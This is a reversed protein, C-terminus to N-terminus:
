HKITATEYLTNLSTRGLPNTVLVYAAQVCFILYNRFRREHDFRFQM